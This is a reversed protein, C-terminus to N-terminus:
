EAILRFYFIFIIILGMFDIFDRSNVYINKDHIYLVDLNKPM